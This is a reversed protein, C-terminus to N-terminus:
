RLRVVASMEFHMPDTYRWDGGWAFGWKRFIAVVRRDMEGTTGRQNGAVNLDVAIGWSHLSLGDAPDRNIYRPYYCGAYEDPHIEPSLGSRVVEDLAARLQPLMAKNCTVKGLIPVDETRIYERVWAPDPSIEGHPRNTYTFHGVEASVSTGTLVATQRADVDFELALTQLTAGDGVIRRFRGELASPTLSGTSVLLANREPIGLQRGRLRNV